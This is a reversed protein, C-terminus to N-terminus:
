GGPKLIALLKIQYKVELGTNRSYTWTVIYDENEERQTGMTVTTTQMRSFLSDSFGLRGNTFEIADQAEAQERFQLRLQIDSMEEFPIASAKTDLILCDWDTGIVGCISFAEDKIRLFYGYESLTFFYVAFCILIGLTITLVKFVKSQFFRKM